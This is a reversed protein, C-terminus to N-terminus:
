DMTGGSSSSSDSSHSRNKFFKKEFYAVVSLFGILGITIMITPLFIGYGVLIGLASVTWIVAATTLGQVKSSSKFIAGAGIFGIGSVIQAIIRTIDSSGYESIILSLATFLASAACILANTKIGALKGRYERELGVLTGVILAVGVRPVLFILIDIESIRSTFDFDPAM